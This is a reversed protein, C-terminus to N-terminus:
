RQLILEKAKMPEMMIEEVAKEMKLDKGGKILILDGEKLIEQIKKGAQYSDEFSFINKKSMGTKGAAEAIFKSRAGATIVINASKAAKRGAEEHAEVSYRGIETMDGLIAIKRKASLKKLTELATFLSLPSSEYTDDLIFTKKIGKIIRMRGKLPSFSSLAQSIKVLNIGLILGVATGAVAAYAQIKGVTGNIRVPVFTERDGIKFSIGKPGEEDERNEFGSVLIDAGKKFGYTIIKGKTREKMKLVEHDDYNLIAFGSTSLYEVIKGKERMAAQPSSFFEAGSPVEGFATLVAINPRAFSLIKKLNKERGSEYELILVEPYSSSKLILRFISFFILSFIALFSKKEGGLITLLAALEADDFDKMMRVKKHQKLVSFIAEKALTKGVGGAVGIIEPRYKKLTNKAIIRLTTRIM